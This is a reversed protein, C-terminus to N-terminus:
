LAKEKFSIKHSIEIYLVSLDRLAGVQGGNRVRMGGM